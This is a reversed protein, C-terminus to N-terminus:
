LPVEFASISSSDIRSKLQCNESSLKMVLSKLEDIESFSEALKKRLTEM